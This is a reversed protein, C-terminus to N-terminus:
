EIIFKYIAILAVLIGVVWYLIQLWHQSPKESKANDIKTNKSNTVVQNENGNVIVNNKDM